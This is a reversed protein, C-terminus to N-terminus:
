CVLGEAPSESAAFCLAQLVRLTALHRPSRNKAEKKKQTAGDSSKDQDVVPSPCNYSIGVPRCLMLSIFQFLEKSFPLSSYSDTHSFTFLSFFGKAWM